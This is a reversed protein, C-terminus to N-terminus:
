GDNKSRARSQGCRPGLSITVSRRGFPRLAERGFNLTRRDNRIQVSQNPNRPRPIQHSASLHGYSCICDHCSRPCATTVSISKYQGPSYATNRLNFYPCSGAKVIVSKSVLFVNEFDVTGGGHWPRMSEQQYPQVDHQSMGALRAQLKL